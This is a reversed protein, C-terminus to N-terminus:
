KAAEAPRSAPRSAPAKTTVLIKVARKREDCYWTVKVKDGVNLKGMAAITDKDFGNGAWAPTYRETFGTPAPKVDVYPDRDGSCGTVTGIVTGTRQKPRAVFMSTLVKQDELARWELGILNPIFAGKLEALVKAEAKGGPPAVLFHEIEGGGEPKVQIETDSKAVLIGVLKGTQAAKGPAAARVKAADAILALAVWMGGALAAGALATRGWRGNDAM